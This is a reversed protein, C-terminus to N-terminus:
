LRVLQLDCLYRGQTTRLDFARLRAGCALELAHRLRCRTTSRGRYLSATPMPGARRCGGLLLFQMERSPVGRSASVSFLSQRKYVSAEGRLRLVRRWSGTLATCRATAAISAVWMTTLFLEEIEAAAFSRASVVRVSAPSTSPLTARLEQTTPLCACPRPFPVRPGLSRPSSGPALASRDLAM